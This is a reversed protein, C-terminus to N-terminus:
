AEKLVQVRIDPHAAESNAQLTPDVALKATYAHAVRLIDAAFTTINLNLAKVTTVKGNVAAIL